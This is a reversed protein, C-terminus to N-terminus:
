KGNHVEKTTSEATTSKNTQSKLEAEAKAKAKKKAQSKSGKTPGKGPKEKKGWDFVTKAKSIRDLEVRHEVVEDLAVGDIESASVVIASEECSVLKGKIRRIPREDKPTNAKGSGVLKLLVLEGVARTYHKPRNLSREVGPSSVELTYRSSIPDHQDLVPSILRNVEVIQATSIGDPRDVTVRLTNGSWEVDVLEVDVTDVIPELLEYIATQTDM